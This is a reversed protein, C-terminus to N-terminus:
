RWLSPRRSGSRRGMGCRECALTIRLFLPKVVLVRVRVPDSDREADSSPKDNVRSWGGHNAGARCRKKEREGRAIVTRTASRGRDGGRGAGVRERERERRKGKRRKERKREGKKREEEKKREKRGERKRGQKGRGRARVGAPRVGV